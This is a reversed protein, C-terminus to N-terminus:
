PLYLVCGTSWLAPVIGSYLGALGETKWIRSLGHVLGRYAPSRGVSATAGGAGGAGGAGAAAGAGAGAGTGAGAGAGRAAATSPDVQLCM